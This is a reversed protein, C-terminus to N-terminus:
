RILWQSLSVSTNDPYYVFFNDSVDSKEIRPYIRLYESGEWVGSNERLPFLAIHNLYKHADGFGLEWNCWKSNIARNTALFVFKKCAKIREKIKLATDANTSAPMTSDLWDVYVDIGLTRILVVAEHVYEKDDHSHSLFVTSKSQASSARKAENLLNKFQIAGHRSETISSLLAKTVIAM